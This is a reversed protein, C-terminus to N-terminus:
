YKNTRYVERKPLFPLEPSVKRDLVLGYGPSIDTTTILIKSM